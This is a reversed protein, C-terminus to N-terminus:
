ASSGADLPTAGLMKLWKRPSHLTVNQASVRRAMFRQPAGLGREARDPDGSVSRSCHHM